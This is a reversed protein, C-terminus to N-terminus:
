SVSRLDLLETLSRRMGEMTFNQVAWERGESGFSNALQSDKLIRIANKAIEDVNVPDILLGTKEPIVAEAAGGLNSGIVPKGAMAAEVYVRGFGEGVWQGKSNEAKSPLLFLDCARYQHALEEDTVEGAFITSNGVGVKKALQELDKRGDGSGVIVYQVEPIANLIQPLARIVADFGKYSHDKALSGVSLITKKNPAETANRPERESSSRLMKELEPLVVNYLVRTKEPAFHNISTLMSKTFESVPLLCEARKAAFHDLYELQQWVEIGHCVIWFPIGNVLKILAAVPALGVHNCIVLDYGSKAIWLAQTTFRAKAGLTPAPGVAGLIRFGQSHRHEGITLLSLLDVNEAGVVDGLASAMSWTHRAIGGHTYIDTALILIRV